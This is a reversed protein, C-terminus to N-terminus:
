SVTRLNQTGIKAGAKKHPTQVKQGHNHPNERLVKAEECMGLVHWNPSTFVRIQGCSHITTAVITLCGTWPTFNSRLWFDAPIHEVEGVVGIQVFSVCFPHNVPHAPGRSDWCGSNANLCHFIVQWKFAKLGSPLGSNGNKGSCREQRRHSEEKGCYQIIGIELKFNPLWHQFWGKM